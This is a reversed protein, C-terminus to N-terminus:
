RLSSCWAIILSALLISYGLGVTYAVSSEPSEQGNLDFPYPPSKPVRAVGM